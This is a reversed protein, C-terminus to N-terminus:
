VGLRVWTLGSHPKIGESAGWTKLGWETWVAQQTVQGRRRESGDGSDM